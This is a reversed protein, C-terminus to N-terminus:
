QDGGRQRHQGDSLLVPCEEQSSWAGTSPVTDSRPPSSITSPAGHRRLRVCASGTWAALVTRTSFSFGRPTRQSGGHRGCCCQVPGGAGWSADRRRRCVRSGLFQARALFTGTVLVAKRAARRVEKEGPARRVIEASQQWCAWRPGVTKQKDVWRRLSDSPKGGAVWPGGHARQVCGGPLVVAAVKRGGAPRWSPEDKDTRNTSLLIRCNKRVLRECLPEDLTSCLAQWGDM